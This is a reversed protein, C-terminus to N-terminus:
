LFYSQEITTILTDRLSTLPEVPTLRPDTLWIEQVFGHTINMVEGDFEIYYFDSAYGGESTAIMGLRDTNDHFFNFRGVFRSPNLRVEQYQGDIFRYLYSIWQAETRFTIAIEPIGNGDLDFLEFSIAMTNDSIPTRRLFVVDDSTIEVGYQNFVRMELQYFGDQNRFVSPEITIYTLNSEGQTIYDWIVLNIEGYAGVKSFVYDRIQGAADIERRRFPLFLSDFQSLFDIAARYSDSVDTSISSTPVTSIQSTDLVPVPSWSWVEGNDAIIRGARTIDGEGGEWVLTRAIMTPPHFNFRGGDSLTSLTWVSGYRSGYRRYVTMSASYRSFSVIHEMIRVPSYINTRTGDIFQGADTGWVWLNGDASLAFRTGWAGTEASVINSMIMTPSHRDTTTGDGIKGRSNIGWTYLDGNIRLVMPAAGASLNSGRHFSFVSDMIKVPTYRNEFTGDGLSGDSNYGWAWLTDDSLLAFFQTSSSNLSRIHQDFFSQAFEWNEMDSPIRPGDSEEAPEEESTDPRDTVISLLERSQPIWFMTGMDTIITNGTENEWVLSDAVRIPVLSDIRAGDTFTMNRGWAWISGDARMVITHTSVTIVDDLIKVPTSRNGTTGDGLVWFQSSGWAWLTGDELLAWFTAIDETNQGRFINMSHVPQDFFSQVFAVISSVENQSDLYAADETTTAEDQSSYPSQEPINYSPLDALSDLADTLETQQLIPSSPTQAPIPSPSAVSANQIEAAVTANDDSTPLHSSVIALNRNIILFVIVAVIIIIIALGIIAIYKNNIASKVALAKSGHTQQAQKINASSSSEKQTGCKPCFNGTVETINNGCNVCFM